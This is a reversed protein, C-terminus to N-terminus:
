LSSHFTSAIFLASFIPFRASRVTESHVALRTWGAVMRAQKMIAESRAVGAMACFSPAGSSVGSADCAMSLPSFNMREVCCSSPDQLLSPFPLWATAQVDSAKIAKMALASNGPKPGWPSCSSRPMFHSSFSAFLRGLPYMPVTIYSCPKAVRAKDSSHPIVRSGSSSSATWFASSFATSTMRRECFGPPPHRYWGCASPPSSREHVMVTKWARAEARWAPM